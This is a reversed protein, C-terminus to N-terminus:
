SPTLPSHSQSERNLFQRSYYSESTEFICWKDIVDLYLHRGASCAWCQKGITDLGNWFTQKAHLPLGQIRLESLVTLTINELEEEGKPSQLSLFLRLSPTVLSSHGQTHM